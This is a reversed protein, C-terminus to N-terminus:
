PAYRLRTACRCPTCTTPPEFGRAGVLEILPNRVLECGKKTTVEEQRKKPVADLLADEIADIIEGRVTVRFGTALPQVEVRERVEDPLAELDPATDVTLVFPMAAPQPPITPHDTEDHWFPEMTGPQVGIAAELRDFGMQVLRDKLREAAQAFEPSVLHAYARNLVEQRRQRAYPMRLVRGLLQEVATDSQVRKVSCFVYAFSCDWGEKLAEITIIYNIKYAPNFLNIGDLGRQKGTAIAIEEEPINEREMLHKKLVEVTVEGGKDEAQFLVLPRVYDPAEGPALEALKKRTLVADRVASEWGQPHEFLMVPLKIMDEAKLELASVSYLVNSGNERDAAPTATLEIVAAPRIRQLTEFSLPTGANHAEDVIM